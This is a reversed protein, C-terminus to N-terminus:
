PDLCILTEPLDVGYRNTSQITRGTERKTMQILTEVSGFLATSGLVSDDGGHLGKRNHHLAMIHVGTDRALDVFAELGRSRIAYDNFHQLPLYRSLPDVIMLDAECKQVISILDAM